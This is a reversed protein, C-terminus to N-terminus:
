SPIGIRPRGPDDSVSEISGTIARGVCGDDPWLTDVSSANASVCLWQKTFLITVVPPFRTTSVVGCSVVVCCRMNILNVFPLM